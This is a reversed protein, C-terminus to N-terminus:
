GDTVETVLVAVSPHEPLAEAVAARVALAVERAPRQGTVAVEMLVHRGPHANDHRAPTGLVSTPHAVGPVAAAARAAASGSGADRGPTDGGARRGSPGTPRPREPANPPVTGSRHAPDAPADDAAHTHAEAHEGASADQGSDDLLGGVRLDVETVELGLRTEAATFLAARLLDATSTLPEEYSAEFEAEIRLPGPPLAGPPPPVAPSDREEDPGAPGVRLTRLRVGAVEEGARRLVGTAAREALWCGDAAPGLPLLRGLGLRQRVAQTWSNDPATPAM